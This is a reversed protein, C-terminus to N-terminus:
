TCKYIFSATLRNCATKMDGDKVSGTSKSKGQKPTFSPKRTVIWNQSKARYNILAPHSTVSSFIFGLNTYYEAVANSLKVGIGIGQYDPLVVLRHEKKMNKVKPHPFHLVACLAVPVDDIFACFYIASKNADASLYHHGKFLDWVTNKVQRVIINISPRRLNGRYFQMTSVDFIWDPELWELIDYHCSVAVFQKNNNKIYKSIAASGIKAVNRDVVSTFEDFVIISDSEILSRAIDARFKQGNSLNQYPLLWAPPSSFGVKSLIETIDKCKLDSKFCDVVSKNFDWEHGNFYSSENFLKKALTTKGTGSAGVIVGINWADFDEIPFNVDWEKKLKESAPIDFMGAIQENRFTKKYDTTIIHKFSSM